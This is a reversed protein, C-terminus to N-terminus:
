PTSRYYAMHAENVMAEAALEIRIVSASIRLRNLEPEDHSKYIIDWFETNLERDPHNDTFSM